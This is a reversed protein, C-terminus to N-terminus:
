IAQCSYLGYNICDGRNYRRASASSFFISGQGYFLDVIMGTDGKWTVIGARDKGRTSVLVRQGQEMTFGKGNTSHIAPFRM